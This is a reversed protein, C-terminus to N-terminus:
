IIEGLAELFIYRNATDCEYLTVVIFIALNEDTLALILEV